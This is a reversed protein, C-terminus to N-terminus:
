SRVELGIWMSKGEFLFPLDIRDGAALSYLQYDEGIIITPVSLMCKDQLSDIKAKFNGAVMNCIEGVADSLNSVAEAVPVGLMRSAIETACSKGCRVSLVGCINGALGVMGTVETVLPPDTKDPVRVEAGVMITFVEQVSYLLIPRWSELPASQGTASQTPASM